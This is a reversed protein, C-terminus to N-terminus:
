GFIAIREDEDIPWGKYQGLVSNICFGFWLQGTNDRYWIHKPYDKDGEYFRLQSARLAAQVWSTARIRDDDTTLPCITTLQKGPRSAIGADNVYAAPLGGWWRMGKHESSGVYTAQLIQAASLPTRSPLQIPKKPM